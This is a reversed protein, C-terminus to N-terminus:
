TVLGLSNAKNVNSVVNVIINGIVPIINNVIISHLNYSYNFSILPPIAQQTTTYWSHM